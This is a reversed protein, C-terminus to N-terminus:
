PASVEPPIAGTTLWTWFRQWDSEKVPGDPLPGHIQVYAQMVEPRKVAVDRWTPADDDASQSV